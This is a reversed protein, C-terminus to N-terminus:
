VENMKLLSLTMSDEGLVDFCFEFDELPMDFYYKVWDTDIWWYIPAAIQFIVTPNREFLDEGTDDEFFLGCDIDDFKLM